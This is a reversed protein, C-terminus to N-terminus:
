SLRQRAIKTLGRALEEVDFEHANATKFTQFMDHPLAAFGRLAGALSGAIAAITDTDNGINAGGVISEIPDGGAYVFLGIAAPGSECVDVQTASTPKLTTCSRNWAPRKSPWTLPWNQAPWWAPVPLWAGKEAALEEGRRAGALCAKAVSYVDAGDTLAAVGAAIACAAGIAIQTNHSPLCTTLAGQCAAEFNGPNVLGAPAVCCPRAMPPAWKPWKVTSEAWSAWRTHIAAPACRGVVLTSPGMNGVHPSEDAWRLLCDVWAANTLNGDVDILTQALYYMQSTDDTIQGLKNGIAGSFTDPPPEVFHRLPGGYQAYIEATSWQETAAGLADGMGAAALSGLIRDYLQDTM